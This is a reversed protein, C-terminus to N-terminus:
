YIEFYYTLYDTFFIQSKAYLCITIQYFFATLSFYWNLIIFIGLFVKLKKLFILFYIGQKMMVSLFSINSARSKDLIGLHSASPSRSKSTSDKRVKKHKISSKKPPKLYSSQSARSKDLIGKHSVSRSRSKSPSSSEERAKKKTM